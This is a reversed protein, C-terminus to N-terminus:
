ISEAQDPHASVTGAAIELANSALGLAGVGVAASFRIRAATIDAGGTDGGDLISASDSLLSVSGVGANLMGLVVNGSARYRINGGGASSVTGDAMTVAGTGARVDITGAEGTTVTANQVVNRAGLLSIAGSDSVVASNLVLDAEAGNSQAQLLINGTGDASVGATGVTIGGDLTRLVISGNPSTVLGSLSDAGFSVTGITVEGSNLCNIGGFGTSVALVDVSTELADM